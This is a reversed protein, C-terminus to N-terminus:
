AQPGLWGDPPQQLLLCAWSGRTPLAGSPVHRDDGALSYGGISHSRMAFARRPAAWAAGRAVSGGSM